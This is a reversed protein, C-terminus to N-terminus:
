CRAFEDRIIIKLNTSFGRKSVAKFLQQPAMFLRKPNGLPKEIGEKTNKRPPFFGSFM